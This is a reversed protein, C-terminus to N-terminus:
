SLLCHTHGLAVKCQNLYQQSKESHLRKETKHTKLQMHKVSIRDKHKQSWYPFQLKCWWCCADAMTAVTISMFSRIHITRSNTIQIRIYHAEGHIYGSYVVTFLICFHKQSHNRYLFKALSSNASCESSWLLFQLVRQPSLSRITLSYNCPTWAQFHRAKYKKTKVKATSPADTRKFGLCVALFM